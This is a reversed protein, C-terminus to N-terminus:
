VTYTIITHDIDFDFSGGPSEINQSTVAQGAIRVENLIVDSVGDAQQIADTLKTRNFVGGYIINDLYNSIAEEVPKGGGSLRNGDMDLVMANRVVQLTFELSTPAQSIIEFHTGAAGIETIYARFAELESASLPQRDDKSVYIRLKTVGEVELQRVAAFRIIQSEEDVEPYEFGYTLPNFKVFHGLQFAMSRTHYWPISCVANKTIAADIDSQHRNMLSELTFIAVAVIYTLIAEISVKSFQEDFTKSRDLGYMQQLTSNAVFDARIAQVIENLTRM